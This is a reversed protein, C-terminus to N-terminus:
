RSASQTEEIATASKSSVTQSKIKKKARSSASSEKRKNTSIDPRGNTNPTNISIGGRKRSVKNIKGKGSRTQSKTTFAKEDMRLKFRTTGLCVHEQFIGDKVGSKM